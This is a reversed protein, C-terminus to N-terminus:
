RLVLRVLVYSLARRDPVVGSPLHHAPVSEVKVTTLMPFESRGLRGATPRCVRMRGVVLGAGRVLHESGSAQPHFSVPTAPDLV